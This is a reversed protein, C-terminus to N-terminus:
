YGHGAREEGIHTVAPADFKGGWIAFQADPDELLRHTFVGESKEVQPWGQHCLATPYLCPNTSFCIRHTTFIDGRDVHQEYGGPNLEVFGGVLKEAQNWAQRKLSIQALNPHRKLVAIMRGIPVSKEFLFDGECHFVWEADTDIVKQWGAQIAGAFGLGHDSDDIEIFHEPEPLAEKASDFTRERYDRRGDAILLFAVSM